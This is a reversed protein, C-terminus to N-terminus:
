SRRSLPTRARVWEITEKTMDITRQPVFRNKLEEGDHGSSPSIRKPTAPRDPEISTPSAAGAPAVDIAAGFPGSSAQDDTTGDGSLDVETLGLRSFGAVIGPTVWKGRADIVQAGSPVAVNAGAAAIRGNRIVVTGGAIPDSGDGLALTGGTIAITQAAVPSAAAILLAAMAARIM